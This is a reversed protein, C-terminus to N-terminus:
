TLCGFKAIIRDRQKVLQDLDFDSSGVSTFKALCYQYRAIGRMSVYYQTGRKRFFGQQVLRDDLDHRVKDREVEYGFEDVLAQMFDKCEWLELAESELQRSAALALMILTRGGRCPPVGKFLANDIQGPLTFLADQNERLQDAYDISNKRIREETLLLKGHPKQPLEVHYLEFDPLQPHVVLVMTVVETTPFAARMQKDAAILGALEKDEIAIDRYVVSRFLSGSKRGVRNLASDHVNKSTVVQTLWITDDKVGVVDIMALPAGLKQIQEHTLQSPKGTARAIQNLIPATFERNIKHWVLTHVGHVQLDEINALLWAARGCERDHTEMNHGTISTIEEYSPPEQLARRYLHEMEKVPDGMDGRAYTALTALSTALEEFVMPNTNVAITSTAPNM